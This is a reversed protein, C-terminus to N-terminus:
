LEEPRYEEIRGNYVARREKLHLAHTVSPLLEEVHHTIYVLGVDTAQCIREVLTLVRQRHIMDLGQCPEDLVMLPPRGCLAAGILVVKQEGQSLESFPKRLLDQINLWGAVTEVVGDSTGTKAQLLMIDKTSLHSTALQMHSETSVWSVLKEDNSYDPLVRLSESPLGEPKALLKSLTSKGAGNGGGVLWRQGKCVKWDLNHLLTVDGRDITLNNASVLLSSDPHVVRHDKEHHFWWAKVNEISPLSPCDWDFTELSDRDKDVGLGLNLLEVGSREMRRETVLKRNKSDLWSFVEMEEVLEEARHTMLLIQTRATHSSNVGQVLIDQTFGSITKSVLDKLVERSAVDLGDFANDLILLKPRNALARVLLVKRIEGTSLTRVDRPLLSYLGFRVILFQAAKNLNGGESIAKYTTGGQELLEQHSEFSVHAIAQSHWKPATIAFEGEKVYDFHGGSVITKGVLSKGSGNRGLLVHGGFSPPDITLHIPPTLPQQSQPYGLRAGRIEILSSDESERSAPTTSVSSFSNTNRGNNHFGRLRPQKITKGVVLWM